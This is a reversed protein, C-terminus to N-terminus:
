KQMAHLVVGDCAPIAAPNGYLVKWYWGEPCALEPQRTHDAYNIATVYFSGDPNKHQTIGIYPDKTQVLYSECADEAFMRYIEYYPQTREPAFGDTTNCALMEVPFGLFYCYGKGLKNRSFVINGEENTALVEAGVSALYLDRQATYEVDGFPFAATHTKGSRRIGNSSLGFIQEFNVFDGGNYTFLCKAGNQMVQELLYDLTRKYMVSWGEICPIIYLGSQMMATDTNRFAINFGAEQALLFASTAKLM